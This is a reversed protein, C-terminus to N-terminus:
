TRWGLLSASVSTGVRAEVMTLSVVALDSSERVGEELLELFVKADEIVLFNVDYFGFERVLLERSITKLHPERINAGLNLVKAGLQRGGHPLILLLQLVELHEFGRFPSVSGVEKSFGLLDSLVGVVNLPLVSELPTTVLSGNEIEHIASVVLLDLKLLALDIVRMGKM